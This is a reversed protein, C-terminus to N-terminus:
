NNVGHHVVPTEPTITEFTFGREQFYKLIEPLAEVTTTKAQSDHMLIVIHGNMRKTEGRINRVLRSAAIGNGNADGSSCNWDFYVYGKKEVQRVLRSMIGENYRTSVTNSSGGPFRIVRAEVGTERKVVDSIKQLDEFYAAESQYIKKYNHTFSHLAIANGSEVINKMYSNYKSNVVFFTAKANHEKLIELIKLTNPSPGDDFTLYVKKDGRVDAPIHAPERKPPAGTEPQPEQSIEQTPPSTSEKTTESAPMTSPAPKETTQGNKTERLHKSLELENQAQRRSNEASILREQRVGQYQFAGHVGLGVALCFLLTFACSVVAM